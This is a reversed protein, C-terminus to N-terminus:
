EKPKSDLFQIMTIRYVLNSKKDGKDDEWTSTKPKAEIYVQSGKSIYQSCLDSLKGWAECNLWETHEKKNDGTGYTESVAVSFKSVSSDGVEKKEPDQGLRGIATLKAFSM